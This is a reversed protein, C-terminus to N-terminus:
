IFYRNDRKKTGTLEHKPYTVLAFNLFKHQIVFATGSVAVLCMFLETQKYVKNVGSSWMLLIQDSLM